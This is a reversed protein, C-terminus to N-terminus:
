QEYSNGVKLNNECIFRRALPGKAGMIQGDKFQIMVKDPETVSIDLVKKNLAMKKFKDYHKNKLKDTMPMNQYM